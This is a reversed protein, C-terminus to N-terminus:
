MAKAIEVAKKKVMGDDGTDKKDYAKAVRDFAAKPAKLEKMVELAGTRAMWHSAPDVAVSELAALLKDKKYWGKVKALWEKSFSDKDDFETKSARLTSMGMWPPQDKTRPKAELVKLTMEYAKQNPKKPFPFGTWAGIVGEFCGRFLEADTDKAFLYKEFSKLAREDSTGYLRSCAFRRVKISPDKDLKEVAKEFAGDVGDAFSTLLWSVSETRVAESEHDAGRMVLAKVDANQKLSSGVTRIMSRLVGPVKEKDAAEVITKQTSGGTGLMSGMLSASQLRVAPSEHDILKAGIKANMGALDKLSTNRNRAKQFTKYAECNGDIGDDNVKCDALTLVLQEYIEPTLAASEDKLFAKLATAKDQVKDAPGASASTTGKDKDGGTTDGGGQKCGFASLSTVCLATFAITHRIM